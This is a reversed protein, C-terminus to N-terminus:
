RTVPLFYAPDSRDGAPLFGSWDGGMSGPHGWPDTVQNITRGPKLVYKYIIFYM